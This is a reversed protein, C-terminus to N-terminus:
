QQSPSPITMAAPEYKKADPSAPNVTTVLSKTVTGASNSASITYVTSAAPAVLTAGVANVLGVGQDISVSNAGVVNWLLTSTSGSNITSPNSSFTGIIPPMASLPTILSAPPQVTICGPVLILLALVALSVIFLKKVTIGGFVRQSCMDTM